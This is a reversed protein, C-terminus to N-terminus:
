EVKVVQKRYTQKGNDLVLLYNGAPLKSGDVNALNVGESRLGLNQVSVQKGALDYIFANVTGPHELYFQLVFKDHFPNPFAGLVVLETSQPKQIGVAVGPMKPALPPNTTAATTRTGQTLTNAGDNTYWATVFRTTTDIVGITDVFYYDGQTRSTNIDLIIYGKQTLNAYKIHPLINSITSTSIAIPSAASTISTAVYEVGVKTTGSLLNNAWATHIDGTLVVVNEIGYNIITDYVRQREAPYGDWQDENLLVGFPRLPAIMVQQALVKWQTTSDKLQTSLWTLQEPGILHRNPDTLTANDTTQEERGDIRTDMIILDMLNGYRIKRYGRFQNPAAQDRIPMWEFYATKSNNLRDAWNGETGPTHNQAGGSWSNNASEHDDWITIFPFNQHLGRLQADLHYHSFRGRYDSLTIIENAPEHERGPINTGVGYEYIYDGLHILADFDNRHMLHEYANYYGNEYDACSVVAFRLNSVNGTPATKTRGTLSFRGDYEFRYYYFSNPQLTQVDIKVTFDKSANTTFQGSQITNAFLTDTAVFWNGSISGTDPTTVRTWIIVANNLPDGSAVGHYFPALATDLSLRKLSAYDQAQTIFPMFAMSLLLGTFYLNRLMYIPNQNLLKFNAILIAHPSINPTLKITFQEYQTLQFLRLKTTFVFIM